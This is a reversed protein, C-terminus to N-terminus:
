AARRERLQRQFWSEAMTPHDPLRVVKRAKGDDGVVTEPGAYPMWAVPGADATFMSFRRQEPIYYSVTVVGCASAAIIPERQFTKVHGKGKVAARVDYSGRPAKAMDHSWDM